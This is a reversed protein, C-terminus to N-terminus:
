IITKDIYMQDIIEIINDHIEDFKEAKSLCSLYEDKSMDAADREDKMKVNFIPISSNIGYLIKCANLAFDEAGYDYNIFVARPKKSLIASAQYPTMSKGLTAVANKGAAVATLAGEVVIIPSGEEIRHLNFVIKSKEKGPNHYKPNQGIFSRASYFDTYVLRKVENPIIIRGFEQNVNGVRMDYYRTQDLTFGRQYLYSMASDSEEVKEIPIKLEFKDQDTDLSSINKILEENEFSLDEEYVKNSDVQVKNLSGRYECRFCHFKLTKTNVYLKGKIDPTGRRNICEPCLFAVEDKGNDWVPTGFAAIIKYPVSIKPEYNKM